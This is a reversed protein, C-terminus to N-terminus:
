HANFWQTATEWPPLAVMPRPWDSLEPISKAGGGTESPEGLMPRVRHFLDPALALKTPWITITKGQQIVSADDPRKGGAASEARDVRYTAWEIEGADGSLDVGPLVERMEDRAHEILQQPEMAVGDEAIQGGIQWIQRGTIDQATTITVRTKAGDVCHGNLTPVSERPGRVMVMHLPRRQMARERLGMRERLASNGAGATLIVRRPRLDLPRGTEPNILRLTQLEGPSTCACEFGHETDIKLIRLRHQWSLDTLFSAPDIVQEDLRAVTGPCQALVAPRQDQALQVPEVQLGARAGIMALRSKLSTTRWLHCYQARLRTASLDPKAEGALCRRWVMPMQSIARASPTLLGSLTYKLGGHIIGQSAITQGSGLDKAELLMTSYGARVLEDLLWLGAAGGGLIVADMSLDDTM